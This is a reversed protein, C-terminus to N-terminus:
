DWNAAHQDPVWQDWNAENPYGSPREPGDYLWQDPPPASAGIAFWHGTVTQREAYWSEGQADVYMEIRNLDPLGHKGSMNEVVPALNASYRHGRNRHHGMQCIALDRLDAMTEAHERQDLQKGSSDVGAVGANEVLRRQSAKAAAARERDRRRIDGIENWADKFGDAQAIWSAPGLGNLVRLRSPRGATRLCVALRQKLLPQEKTEARMRVFLSEYAALIGLAYVFVFAIPTMWIPLLFEQALAWHDIDAWESALRWVGWLLAYAGLLALYGNALRAVGAYEPERAAVAVVGFVLALGQVPIEIWLAFSAFNAVFEIVLFVGLTRAITRRAFKPEDIADPFKGFLGFGSLLMWLLTAKWLSANWIGLRAALLLMGLIWFVFGLVPVLIKWHLFSSVLERGAARAEGDRKRLVLAVCVVLLGLVVIGAIERNSLSAEDM